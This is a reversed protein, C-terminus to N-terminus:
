PFRRIYSKYLDICGDGYVVKGILFYQPQIALLTIDKSPLYAQAMRDSTRSGSNQHGQNMRQSLFVKTGSTCSNAVSAAPRRSQNDLQRVLCPPGRVGERHYV